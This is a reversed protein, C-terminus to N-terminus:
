PTPSRVPLPAPGPLSRPGPFIPGWSYLYWPSGVQVVIPSQRAQQAQLHLHAATAQHQAAIVPALLEAMQREEDKERQLAVAARVRRAKRRELLKQLEAKRQESPQARTSRLTESAKSAGSPVQGLVLTLILSSFMTLDRSETRMWEAIPNLGMNTM